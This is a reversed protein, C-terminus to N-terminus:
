IYFPHFWQMRTCQNSISYIHGSKYQNEKFIFHLYFIGIFTQTQHKTIM